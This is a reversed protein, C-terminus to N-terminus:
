QQRDLNAPANPQSILIRSGLISRRDRRVADDDRCLAAPSESGRESFTEAVDMRLLPVGFDDHDVVARACCQSM